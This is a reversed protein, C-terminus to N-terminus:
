TSTPLLPAPAVCNKGQRKAVYLAIDAQRFLDEADTASEGLSAVGASVSVGLLDGTSSAFCREHFTERIREATALAAAQNTEPQLILFEDGGFRAVIDTSRVHEKIARALEVLHRNGEEHGFRDNVVKLSDSDIMILALQHGYRRTRLVEEKLRLDFYRANFCRTLEDTIALRRAEEFAHARSLVSAGQAALVELHRVDAQRFHEREAHLVFLSGHMVGESRLPVGMLSHLAPVTQKWAPRGVEAHLDGLVVPNGTTLMEYSLSGRRDPPHAAVADADVNRSAALTFTGDQQRRWVLGAEAGSIEIAGRLLGDMAEELTAAEALSLSARHLRALEAIRRELDIYATAAAIALAASNALTTALRLHEQSFSKGGFKAGRLVGLLKGEAILPVFIGARAGLQRGVGPVARPDKTVDDVLLPERHLAVWGVFGEGMRNPQNRIRAEYDDPYRTRDFSLATPELLEREPRWLWIGASDATTLRRLAEVSAVLTGDLDLKAAKQTVENLTALETIRREQEEHARAAARAHTLALAVLQAFAGAVKEERESFAGPEPSEAALVGFLDDGAVIPEYLVSVVGHVRALARPDARLDPVNIARREAAATGLIGKGLPVRFRRAGPDEALRGAAAAVYLDARKPDYLFIGSSGFGLHETLLSTASDLVGRETNAAQLLARATHMVLDLDALSLRSTGTAPGTAM